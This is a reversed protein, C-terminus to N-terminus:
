GDTNLNKKKTKEGKIYSTIHCLNRGPHILAAKNVKFYGKTKGLSHYQKKGQSFKLTTTIKSYLTAGLFLNEERKRNLLQKSHRM